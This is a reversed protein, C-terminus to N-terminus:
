TPSAADFSGGLLALYEARVLPHLVRVLEDLRRPEYSETGHSLGNRITRLADIVSECDSEILEAILVTRGLMQETDLDAHRSLYHSLAEGLTPLARRPVRKALKAERRTLRGETKLEAVKELLSTVTADHKAQQVAIKDRQGFGFSAEMWQLLLLLRAQPHQDRGIAATNYGAILPHGAAHLENRRILADVLSLNSKEATFALRESPRQSSYYPQHTSLNMFLHAKAADVGEATLTALTVQETEGTSVSILARLPLCWSRLWTEASLPTASTFSIWPTFRVSLQYPNIASRYGYWFEATMGAATWVQKMTTTTAGFDYPPGEKPIVQTDLPALGVFHDLRTMQVSMSTFLASDPMEHRSVLAIASAILLQDTFVATVTADLLTVHLDRSAIYGRILPEDQHHPYRWERAAPRGPAHGDHLRGRASGGPSHGSLLEVEGRMTTGNITWDCDYEGPEIVGYSEILKKADDVAAM